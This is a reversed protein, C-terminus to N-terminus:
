LKDWEFMMANPNDPAVKVPVTSGIAVKGVASAPVMAVEVPSQFPLRGEIHTTTQMTYLHDDGVVQGTDDFKDITAWGSLGHEKLFERLQAVSYGAQDSFRFPSPVNSGTAGLADKVAQLSEAGSGSNAVGANGGLEVVIQQPDNPDVKVPLTAGMTVEGLLMLPVYDKYTARYTSRGPVNVDLTLEIQPNDNLLLGTQTMGVITGTGAVGVAEVHEAKAVRAGSRLGFAVLVVGVLGLIVATIANHAFVFVAALALEFIGIGIFWNRTYKSFTTASFQRSM